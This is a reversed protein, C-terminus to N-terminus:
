RESGMNEKPIEARQSTITSGLKRKTDRGEALCHDLERKKKKM